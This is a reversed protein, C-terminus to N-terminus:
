VAHRGDCASPLRGFHLRLCWDPSPTSAQRAESAPGSLAAEGRESYAYMNDSPQWVAHLGDRPHRCRHRECVPPPTPNGGVSAASALGFCTAGCSSADVVPSANTTGCVGGSGTSNDVTPAEMLTAGKEAAGPPPKGRHAGDPSASVSSAIRAARSDRGLRPRATSASVAKVMCGSLEGGVEGTISGSANAARWLASTSRRARSAASSATRSASRRRKTSASCSRRSARLMTCQISLGVWSVCAGPQAVPPALAHPAPGDLAAAGGELQAHQVPPSLPPAAAPPVVCPSHVKASDRQTPLQM